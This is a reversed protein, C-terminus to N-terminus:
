REPNLSLPAHSAETGKAEGQRLLDIERKAADLLRVFEPENHLQVVATGAGIRAAEVDSQWHVGCLVRLEGLEYGRKLIAGQREPSIEALALALGWGRSSHGSPYSGNDVLWAEDAPACTEGSVNFYTFPRIRKYHDKAPNITKAMYEIVMELLAHTAPTSAKDIRLGFSDLFLTELHAKDEADHTAQTWRASGKESRTERYIAVDREFDPSGAAPPPPIFDILAPVREMAEVSAARAAWPICPIVCLAVLIYIGPIKRAM